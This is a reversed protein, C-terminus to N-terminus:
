QHIQVETEQKLHLYDPLPLVDKEMEISHSSCASVVSNEIEM